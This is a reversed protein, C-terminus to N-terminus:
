KGGEGNAANLQAAIRDMFAQAAAKNAFGSLMKHDAYVQYRGDTGATEDLALSKVHRSDLYIRDTVKILM